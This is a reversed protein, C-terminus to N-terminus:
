RNRDVYRAMQCLSEEAGSFASPNSLLLIRPTKPEPGIYIQEVAASLSRRRARADDMASNKWQKIGRLPDGDDPTSDLAAAVAAAFRARPPSNVALEWPLSLSSTQYCDGARFSGVRISPDQRAMRAGDIVRHVLSVPDSPLGAAAIEVLYELLTAR